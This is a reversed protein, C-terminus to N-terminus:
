RRMRRRVSRLAPLGLAFLALSSPEPVPDAPNDASFYEFENAGFKFQGATPGDCCFEGGFTELLHNGSALLASGTLLESAAGWNGGWWLDSNDFDLLAGDLYLAGGLGYDPAIRFEWLGDDGPAVYFAVSTHFFVDFASGGCTSQNSANTWAGLTTDCYGAPATPDTTVLSNWHDVYDSAALFPPGSLSPRTEYTILAASASQAVGLSLLAAILIRVRGNSAPNGCLM